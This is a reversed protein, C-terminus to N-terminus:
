KVYQIWEGLLSQIVPADEPNDAYKGARYILRYEIDNYIFDNNKVFYSQAPQPDEPILPVPIQSPNYLKYYFFEDFKPYKKPLLIYMWGLAHQTYTSLTQQFDAQYNISIESANPVINNLVKCNPLVRIKAYATIGTSSDLTVTTINTGSNYSAGNVYRYAVFVNQDTLCTVVRKRRSATDTGIAISLFDYRRDGTLTFQTSSIRTVNFIDIRDATITSSTISSSRSIGYLIDGKTGSRQYPYTIM